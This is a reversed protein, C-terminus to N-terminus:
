RLLEGRPFKDVAELYAKKDAISIFEKEGGRNDGLAMSSIMSHFYWFCFPLAVPAVLPQSNHFRSKDEM